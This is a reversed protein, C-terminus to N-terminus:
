GLKKMAAAQLIQRLREADYGGAGVPPYASPTVVGAGTPYVMGATWDNRPVPQATPGQPVPAGTGPGGTGPGGSGWGVPSGKKQPQYIGPGPAVPNRGIGM